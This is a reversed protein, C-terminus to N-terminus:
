GTFLYVQDIGALLSHGIQLREGIRPVYFQSAQRVAFVDQSGVWRVKLRDPNIQQLIGYLVTRFSRTHREVYGIAVLIGCQDYNFVRTWSDRRFM